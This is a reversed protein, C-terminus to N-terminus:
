LGPFVGIWRWLERGCCCAFGLSGDDTASREGGTQGPCNAQLTWECGTGKMYEGCRRKMEQDEEESEEEEEAEPEPSAEEEEPDDGGPPAEEERVELREQPRRRPPEEQRERQRDDDGGGRPPEEESGPGPLMPLTTTTTTGSAAAPRRRRTSPPSTRPRWLEHLCCCKYGTSADYSVRGRGGTQGPCNWDLSWSCGVENMYTDCEDDGALGEVDNSPLGDELLPSSTTTTTTTSTTAVMTTSASTSESSSSVGQRWLEHECCCKYGTSTDHSVRGIGGSQGPCTWSRSWACGVDQMYQDCEAPVLAERHLAAEDQDDGEAAIPQQGGSAALEENAAHAAAVDAAARRWLERGCCCIYGDSDDASASGFGGTQGPCNWDLSWRCSVSSLYADCDGTLSPV